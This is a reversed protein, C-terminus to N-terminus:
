QGKSPFLTPTFALFKEVEAPVPPSKGEFGLERFAEPPALVGRPGRIMGEILCRAHLEGRVYYNQELYFRRETWCLMRTKVTVLSCATIARKYTFAETTTIPVWGRRLAAYRFPSGFMYDWRCLAAYVSYTQTFLRFADTDILPLAFFRKAFVDLLGRTPRLFCALMTFLFRLRYM